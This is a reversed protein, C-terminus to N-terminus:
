ARRTRRGASMSLTGFAVWSRERLADLIRDHDPDRFPYYATFRTGSTPSARTESGPERNSRGKVVEIHDRWNAPLDAESLRKTAPKIIELGHNEASMKRHWIWMVHGCADIANAFDFGVEASMM